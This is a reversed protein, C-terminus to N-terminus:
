IFNWWWRISAPPTIRTFLRTPSVDHIADDSLRGTSVPHGTGDLSAYYRPLRRQWELTGRVMHSLHKVYDRLAPHGATALKQELTVFLETIEEVLACARYIAEQRSCRNEAAIIGVVNSELSRQDRERAYSPIDTSVNFLLGAADTIARVEPLNRTTFDLCTGGIVEILPITVLYAGDSGRAIMHEDLSRMYNGSRDSVGCGAGLAWQFHAMSVLMAHEASTRARVRAMIDGLAAAFSDFARDGIPGREPDMSYQMLNLVVHNYATPDWAYPGDDCYYDDFLLAWMLWDSMLQVGEEDATPGYMCALDGTCMRRASSLLDAGVGMRRFFEESGLQFSLGDGYSFLELPCWIPPINLAGGLGDGASRERFFVDDLAAVLGSSRWRPVALAHSSSALGRGPPSSVVRHMRDSFGDITRSDSGASCREPEAGALDVSESETPGPWTPGLLRLLQNPQGTGSAGAPDTVDGIRALANTADVGGLATACDEVRHEVAESHAPDIGFLRGVDAAVTGIGTFGHVVPLSPTSM